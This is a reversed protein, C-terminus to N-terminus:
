VHNGNFLGVLDQDGDGDLDMAKLQGAFPLDHVLQAAGFQAVATLSGLSAAALLYLSCNSAM